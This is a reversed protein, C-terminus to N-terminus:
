RNVKKLKDIDDSMKRIQTQISGNADQLSPSTVTDKLPPNREMDTQHKVRIEDMNRDHVAQSEYDAIEQSKEVSWTEIIKTVVLLAPGGIIALISVYNEASALYSPDYATLIFFGVALMVWAYVIMLGTKMMLKDMNSKTGM